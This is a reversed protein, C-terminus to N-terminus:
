RLLPSSAELRAQKGKSERRGWWQGKKQGEQDQYQETHRRQRAPDVIPPLDHYKELDAAESEAVGSTDRELWLVPRPAIMEPPYILGRLGDGPDHFFQRPEDSLDPRTWSAKETHVKDDIWETPLPLPCDSPLRTYGPLLVALRQLMSSDSVRHSRPEADDTKSDRKMDRRLDALANKTRIPLDKRRPSPYRLFTLGSVLLVTILALALSVSGIAWERRSLLILGYLLPQLSLLLGFRTIVWLGLTPSIFGGHKDVCVNEIMYRGAVLSLFLMLLLPIALLPFLFILSFAYFVAILFPLLAFAMDFSPPATRRFRQRPTTTRRRSCFFNWLRKPQLLYLAPVIVAINLLIIFVFWTSFIAGDGVFRASQVELVLSQVAFELAAVTILWFLTTFLLLYFTAKFCLAEQHVRSVVKVQTSFHNTLLVATATALIVALAPALGQAVGSGFGDSRELPTLLGLYHAFGPATAVSLGLFPVILLALAVGLVGVKIWFAKEGSKMGVHRWLVDEITRGEIMEAGPIWRAGRGVIVWGVIDTGRSLQVFTQQQHLAIEGNLAVLRARSQRIVDYQQGLPSPNFHSTWTPMGSAPLIEAQHESQPSPPEQVDVRRSPGAQLPPLDMSTSGPVLDAQSDGSSGSSSNQPVREVPSSGNAQRDMHTPTVSEHDDHSTSSLPNAAESDPSPDPVYEGHENVKIRQGISFRKSFLSSDRNVEVFRSIPNRSPTSTPIPVELREGSGSKRRGSSLKYYERPALYDDVKHSTPEGKNYELRHGNSSTPVLHFSQVYKAEAVELAELVQDREALKHRWKSTEPIAFLGVIDVHKMSDKETVEGLQSQLRKLLRAETMNRWGPAEHMPIVVMDLGGCMDNEFRKRYRAFSAYLRVIVFLGGACSFLALLVLIIVLRIRASSIAPAITSMLARKGLRASVARSYSPLHLRVSTTMSDPSPDLADLLRLLSLDTLSGLRGGQENPPATSSLCPVGATILPLAGALALISAIGALKLSALMTHLAQQGSSLPQSSSLSPLHLFPLLFTVLSLSPRSESPVHWSRPSYMAPLRNRLIAWLGWVLCGFIVAVSLSAIAGWAQWDVDGACSNTSDLAARTSGSASSLSLPATSSAMLSTLVSTFTTSVAVGASTRGTTIATSMTTFRTTSTTAEAVFSSSDRSSEASLARACDPVTTIISIPPSVPELSAERDYSQRDATFWSQTYWEPRWSLTEDGCIYFHRKALAHETSESPSDM